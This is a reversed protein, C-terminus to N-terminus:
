ASWPAARVTPDNARRRREEETLDRQLEDHVSRAVEEDLQQQIARAVSEDLDEQSPQSDHSVDLISSVAAELDGHHFQLMAELVDAEIEPFM